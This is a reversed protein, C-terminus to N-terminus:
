NDTIYSSVEQWKNEMEEIKEKNKKIEEELENMKKYDNYYDPNFRLEELEKNKEDLLSLENEIKELEKNWNKSRVKEKKEKVKKVSYVDGNEEKYQSYNYPYYEAKGNNIILLSDSVQNILWRDHSVLLITGDYQSLAKELAEKGPIDLHNSPEDLILFNDRRLMLKALYLRVKEGGSLVNVEKFVEDATFLFSGLTTRIETQTYQPFDDWLEELVSKSSDLQALQQDFYGISIQHGLVFEGDLPKLKGALPKVLTSKGQGNPGIVAIRQGRLVELNVTCLPKDYGIVLDRTEVVQKGGRIAASFHAKFNSKEKSPAEIIEMRDLYKIKSQAFAAKNKKYRFKEILSELRAIEKQQRDYAQKQLLRNEKKQKLYESYNGHWLTLKEDDIEYIKNVSHDLFARDHSAILVAGPYKKLYNELWEITEIDLHNTPEDLLLLDPKELLLCAFALKTKQGGSFTEIKRELDSDSFGFRTLVNKQESQYTYGGKDQFKQEIRAYDSLTKEDSNGSLKETLKDLKDKLSFLPQYIEDLKQQVTMTEDAFADQRLYGININSAKNIIGSDLEEKGEIVRLLTTKGTGNRGILAVKDKENIQFQIDKFLDKSGFYKTGRSIQYIM